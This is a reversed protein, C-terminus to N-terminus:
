HLCRISDRNWRGCQYETDCGSKLPCLRTCRMCGGFFVVYIIVSHISIFTVIYDSYKNCLPLRVFYLYMYFSSLITRPALWSPFRWRSWILSRAKHSRRFWRIKVQPPPTQSLLPSSVCTWREVLQPSYHPMFEGFTPTWSTYPEDIFYLNFNLM